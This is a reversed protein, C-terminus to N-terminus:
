RGVAVSRRVQILSTRTYRRIWRTAVGAPYFYHALQHVFYLSYNRVEYGNGGWVPALLSYKPTPSIVNGLTNNSNLAAGNPFYRYFNWTQSIYGSNNMICVLLPVNYQQAFGFAAPIPNYNFAGDGIICVVVKDPNGVKAGLGVGIGTGLGGQWGRVHQFHKSPNQFLFHTYCPVQTLSLTVLSYTLVCTSLSM